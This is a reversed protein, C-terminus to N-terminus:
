IAIPAKYALLRCQATPSLGGPMHEDDAAANIPIRWVTEPDLVARPNQTHEPCFTTGFDQFRKAIRLFLPPDEWLIGTYTEDRAGRKEWLVYAAAGLHAVNKYEEWLDKMKRESKPGKILSEKELLWWVKGMSAGGRISSSAHNAIQYLTSLASGAFFLKSLNNGSKRLVHETGRALAVASFGGAPMFLDRAVGSLSERAVDDIWKRAMAEDKFELDGPSLGQLEVGGAVLSEPSAQYRGLAEAAMTALAEGRRHKDEPHVMIYITQVLATTQRAARREPSLDLAALDAPLTRL